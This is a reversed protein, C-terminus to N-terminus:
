LIRFNTDICRFKRKQVFGFEKYSYHSFTAPNIKDIIPMAPENWDVSDLSISNDKKTTQSTVNSSLTVEFLGDYLYNSTTVIADSPINDLPLGPYTFHHLNSHQFGHIKTNVDLNSENYIDNTFANESLSFIADGDIRNVRLSKYMQYKFVVVDDKMVWISKGDIKYNLNNGEEMKDSFVVISQINSIDTEPVIVEIYEGLGAEDSSKYHDFLSDNNVNGNIVLEPHFTDVGIMSFSNHSVDGNVAINSGDVWIQIQEVEWANPYSQFDETKIVRVKNFTTLNSGSNDYILPYGRVPSTNSEDLKSFDNVSTQKTQLTSFVLIPSGDNIVTNLIIEDDNM